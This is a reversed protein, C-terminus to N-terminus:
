KKGRRAPSTKVTTDGEVYEPLAGDTGDLDGPLTALSLGDGVVTGDPLEAIAYEDEDWGSAAACTGEHGGNASCIGLGCYDSSEDIGYGHQELAQRLIDNDGLDVEAFGDIFEIGSIGKSRGPQFTPHTIRAM